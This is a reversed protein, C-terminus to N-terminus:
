ALANCKDCVGTALLQFSNVQFGKPLQALHIPVNTLCYTEHCIDCKFHVHDDHHHGSSCDDKCVAWKVVANDDLVKHILGEQEFTKLTRYLTVRDFKNDFVEELKSHSLATDSHLFVSLVEQRAATKRLSHKKLISRIQQEISM